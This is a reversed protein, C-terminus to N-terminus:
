RMRELAVLSSGDAKDVSEDSLCIILLLSAPRPSSGKMCSMEYGAGTRATLSDRMCIWDSKTFSACYVFGM